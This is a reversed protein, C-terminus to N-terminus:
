VTIPKWAKTLEDYELWAASAPYWVVYTGRRPDWIPQPMPAIPPVVAAPDPTIWPPPAVGAAARDVVLTGAARDGLRRHGPSSTATVLAVVGLCFGDVIWLLNRIVSKGFGCPEGTTDRVVRIGFAAKGPTWGYHGEMWTILLWWGLAVLYWAWSAQDFEWVTNSGAPVCLHRISQQLDCYTSPDAVTRSEFSVIMAILPILGIASSMLTDVIKAGARRGIVATPDAGRDWPDQQPLPGATSSPGGTM